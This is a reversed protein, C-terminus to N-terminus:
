VGTAVRAGANGRRQRGFFTAGLLGTILMPLAAPLPVASISIGSLSHGQGAQHNTVSWHEVNMASSNDSMYIGYGQPDIVSNFILKSKGDAETNNHNVLDVPEGNQFAIGFWDNVTHSSGALFSGGSQANNENPAFVLNVAGEFLFIELGIGAFGTDDYIATVSATTGNAGPANYLAEISRIAADVNSASALLLAFFTASVLTQM